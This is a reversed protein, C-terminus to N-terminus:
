TKSSSSLSNASALTLGGGSECGKNALGPGSSQNKTYFYTAALKYDILMNLPVHPLRSKPLDKHSKRFQACMAYYRRNVEAQMAINVVEELARAGNIKLRRKREIDARISNEVNLLAVMFNAGKDGSSNPRWQVYDEDDLITGYEELHELWSKSNLERFMWELTGKHITFVGLSNGTECAKQIRADVLKKLCLLNIYVRRLENKEFVDSWENKEIIM